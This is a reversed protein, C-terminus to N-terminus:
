ELDEIMENITSFVDKVTIVMGYEDTYKHLYYSGVKTHRLKEKLKELIEIQSRSIANDIQREISM